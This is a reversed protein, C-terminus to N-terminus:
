PPPRPSGRTRPAPRGSRGSRARRLRRSAAEPRAPAPAISARHGARALRCARLQVFAGGMVLRRRRRRHAVFGLRAGRDLGPRRGVLAQEGPQVAGLSVGDGVALPRQQDEGPCPRALGAHEGVADGPQERGALRARVLDERDGEGVLRRLLHAFPDGAQDAPDLPPHPHHGEVGGAGAQKAQLGLPEAVRLAERDVVLGVGPAHHLAAEVLQLHVRLAVRRPGHLRPDGVGLVREHVGLGVPLHLARRELLHHPLGVREVLAPHQFGVRHVEVVQQQPGDVHELQELVDPAAVLLAEAPDQHVLVLVGVAGLVPQELEERAPVAVQRDDSVIGLRDVRKAPCVDAVDELELPVERIGM